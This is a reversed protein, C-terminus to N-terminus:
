TPAAPAINTFVTAEPEAAVADHNTEVRRATRGLPRAPGTRMSFSPANWPPPADAWSRDSAWTSTEACALGSCCWRRYATAAQHEGLPDGGARQDNRRHLGNRSCREWLLETM